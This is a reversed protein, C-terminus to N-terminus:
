NDHFMVEGRFEKPFGDVLHGAFRLEAALVSGGVAVVLLTTALRILMILREPAHSLLRCAPSADRHSSEIPCPLIEGDLM